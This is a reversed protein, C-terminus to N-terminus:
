SIIDTKKNTSIFYDHAKSVLEVTNKANFKEKLNKKHTIVTTESIFLRNAIEKACFGNVLLELIDKERRTPCPQDKNRAYESKLSLQNIEEEDTKHNVLNKTEWESRVINIVLDPLNEILFNIFYFLHDNVSELSEIRQELKKISIIDKQTPFYKKNSLKSSNTISDPTLPYTFIDFSPNCWKKQIATNIKELLVTKDSPM